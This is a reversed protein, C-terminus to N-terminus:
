ERKESPRLKFGLRRPVHQADEAANADNCAIAGTLGVLVVAGSFRRGFGTMTAMTCWSVRLGAPALM